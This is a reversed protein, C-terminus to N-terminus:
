FVVRWEGRSKAAITNSYLLDLIEDTSAQKYQVIGACFVPLEVDTSQASLTKLEGFIKEVAKTAAFIRTEPLILMIRQNSWRGCCDSQRLNHHLTQVVKTLGTAHGKEDAGQRQQLRGNVVELLVLSLPRNYRAARAIERNIEQLLWQRDADNEAASVQAKGLRKFKAIISQIDQYGLYVRLNNKELVVLRSMEEQNVHGSSKERETMSIQFEYCQAFNKNGTELGSYTKFHICQYDGIEYLGSVLGQWELFDAQSIYKRDENSILSYASAFEGRSLHAFYQKVVNTALLVLRKLLQEPQPEEKNRNKGKEALRLLYVQDYAERQRPDRLVGYAQNILKMKAEAGAEKNTDPHYKKSLKKYAGEIVEPEALYHVQMIRYLDRFGDAQRKMAQRKYLFYTVYTKIRQLVLWIRKILTYFYFFM